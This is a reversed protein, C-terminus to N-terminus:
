MKYTDYHGHMMEEKEPGPVMANHEKNDFTDNRALKM